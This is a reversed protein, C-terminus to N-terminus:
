SWLSQAVRGKSAGGNIGWKNKRDSYILVLKRNDWLYYRSQYASSPPAGERFREKLKAPPDVILLRSHVRTEIGLSAAFPPLYVQGNKLDVIGIQQCETGCGWTNVAYHGAFNPGQAATEKLMSRFTRASPNSRFNIEAPKGRFTENVPYDEFRPARKERAFSGLPLFCIISALILRITKM